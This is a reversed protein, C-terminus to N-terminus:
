NFTINGVSSLVVFDTNATTCVLRICDYTATSSLFGTAGTTTNVNGFHITQGSAQAIKWGGASKGAIEVISGLAATAPLTYTVLSAGNDTVYGNNVAMTVSGSTQDNWTIGTGGSYQPINLTNSIFTAAGSSGTTTLTIPAQYDTGATAASISTGDGKLVGTITTSLTIAPTTSATAVSGAFGHASVVSVSTVTGSGGGGSTPIWAGISVQPNTTLSM